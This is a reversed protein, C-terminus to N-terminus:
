NGICEKLVKLAAEPKALNAWSLKCSAHFLLTHLLKRNRRNHDAERSAIGAPSFASCIAPWIQGLGNLEPRRQRHVNKGYKPWSRGSNQLM